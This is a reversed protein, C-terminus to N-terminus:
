DCSKVIRSILEPYEPQIGKCLRYFLQRMDSAWGFDLMYDMVHAIEEEDSIVGALISNVIPTYEKVARGSLLQLERAIPKIDEILKKYDDDEQDTCVLQMTDNVKRGTAAQM